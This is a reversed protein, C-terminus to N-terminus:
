TQGEFHSAHPNSAHFSADSVADSLRVKTQLDRCEALLSFGEGLLVLLNQLPLTAFPQGGFESYLVDGIHRRGWKDFKKIIKRFAEANLRSRSSILWIYM